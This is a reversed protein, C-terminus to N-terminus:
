LDKIFILLEILEWSKCIENLLIVLLRFKNTIRKNYILILLGLLVNLYNKKKKKKKKIIIIPSILPLTSVTHM